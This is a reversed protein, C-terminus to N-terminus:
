TNRTRRNEDGADAFDHACARYDTITVDSGDVCFHKAADSASVCRKFDTHNNSHRLENHVTYIGYLILAFTLRHRGDLGQLFFHSPPVRNAHYVKMSSPLLDQIARCYIFHEISDEADGTKCFM